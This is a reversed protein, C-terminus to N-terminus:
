TSAGSGNHSRIAYSKGNHSADAFFELPRGWGDVTPLIKVYTPTLLTNMQANGVQVAPLTFTAGAATYSRAESARSEWGVAITRMDAMTRKQKARTLTTFYNAIAIAALIGIIAVVLLLELITFGRELKKM